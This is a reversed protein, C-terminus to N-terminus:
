RPWLWGFFGATFLAFLLADFTSRLTTSLQRKYWITHQWLAAGYGLFATAGAFRFVQLYETGSPLARSTIYGAFLSMVLCYIFWYLMQAGMGMNEHPLATFFIVPGAKWKAKFEESRMDAMDNPRPMCYDGPPINFPRLADMVGKENPVARYDNAHYGLLMHILSSLVFVAVASLVIPLWLSALPVM